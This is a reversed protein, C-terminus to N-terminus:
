TISAHKAFESYVYQGSLRAVGEIAVYVREPYACAYLIQFLM